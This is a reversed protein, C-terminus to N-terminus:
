KVCKWRWNRNQHQVYTQLVIQAEGFAEMSDFPGRVTAHRLAKGQFFTPSVMKGIVFGHGIDIDVEIRSQTSIEHPPINHSDPDVCFSSKKVANQFGTQKMSPEKAGVQKWVSAFYLSGIQSFNFSQLQKTYRSLEDTFRMKEDQTMDDWVDKVPVGEIKTMLLWEYGLENQASSEYATLEPVPISTYQRVYAVTAAQSETQLFPDIPLVVRLV